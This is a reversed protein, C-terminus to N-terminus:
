EELGIKVLDVIRKINGSLYLYGMVAEMGTAKHYESLSANKAITHPKANKGRKYIREEEDTLHPRIKEIMEAQKPAKVLRSAKRHMQQVPRNGESMIMTRILLDYISDGIYALALPSYTRIDVDALQFQEKFYRLSEEM